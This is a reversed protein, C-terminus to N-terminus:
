KSFNVQLHFHDCWNLMFNDRNILGKHTLGVFHGCVSLYNLTNSWKTFNARLPNFMANEFLRGM